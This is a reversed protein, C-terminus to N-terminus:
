SRIIWGARRCTLWRRRRSGEPDRPLLRDGSGAAAADDGAAMAPAAPSAEAALVPVSERVVAAPAEGIEQRLLEVARRFSVGEFRMVWDIVSGGVQCAGLCHWLNTKPSVVLSPTKDDHFPCRGVRDKGHPKLEIGAAEVLREVSVRRKLREIEHDPIRAM